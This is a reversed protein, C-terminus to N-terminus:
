LVTPRNPLENIYGSRKPYHKDLHAGVAKIGRILAQEFLGSRLDAEIVRCIKEWGEAGVLTHIGRDAVIEVDRDALLLYILVGNNDETDWVRLDSFVELARERASQNRFLPGIDLGAEVAFRIEGQHTREAERIAAEIAHMTSSPFARRVQWHGSCLHKILRSLSM